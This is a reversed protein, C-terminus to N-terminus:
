PRRETRDRARPPASEEQWALARPTQNTWEGGNEMKGRNAESLRQSKLIPKHCPTSAEVTPWLHVLCPWFPPTFILIAEENFLLTHHADASTDTALLPRQRALPSATPLRFPPPLCASQLVLAGPSPVSLLFTPLRAFPRMRMMNVCGGIPFTLLTPSLPWIRHSGDPITQAHSTHKAYTAQTNPLPWRRKGTGAREPSRADCTTSPNPM